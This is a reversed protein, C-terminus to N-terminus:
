ASCFILCVGWFGFHYIFQRFPSSSQNRDELTPQMPSELFGGYHFDDKSPSTPRHQYPELTMNEPSGEPSVQVYEHDESENSSSSRTKLGLIEHSPSEQNQKIADYSLPPSLSPTSHQKDALYRHGAFQKEIAEFSDRYLEESRLLKKRTSGLPLFGITSKALGTNTEKSKKRRREYDSIERRSLEITSLPLRIM